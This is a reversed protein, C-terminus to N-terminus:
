PTSTTARSSPSRGPGECPPAVAAARPEEEEGRCGLGFLLLLALGWIALRPRRLRRRGAGDRAPPADRSGKGRRGGSGGSLELRYRGPRLGEPLQLTLALDEDPRLEYSGLEKGTEADRIALRYVPLEDAPHFVLM